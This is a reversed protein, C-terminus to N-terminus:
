ALLIKAVIKSSIRQRAFRLRKKFISHMSKRSSENRAPATLKSHFIELYYYPDRVLKFFFTAKNAQLLAQPDLNEPVTNIANQPLLTPTASLQKILQNPTLSWTSTNEYEGIGEQPSQLQCLKCCIGTHRTPTEAFAQRVEQFAYNTDPMAFRQFVKLFHELILNM